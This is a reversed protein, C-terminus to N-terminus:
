GYIYKKIDTNDIYGVLLSDQNIPTNQQIECGGKVNELEQMKIEQGLAEFSFRKKKRWM